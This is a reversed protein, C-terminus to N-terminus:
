AKEGPTLQICPATLPRGFALPTWLCSSGLAGTEWRWSDEDGTRNWVMEATISM